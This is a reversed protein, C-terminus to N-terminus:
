VTQRRRRALIMLAAGGGVLLTGAAVFGGVALGTNPLSGGGGPATTASPSPTTEDRFLGADITVESGAKAPFVLTGFETLEPIEEDEFETPYVDSDKRADDGQDPKTIKWIIPEDNSTFTVPFVFTVVEGTKNLEVETVEYRGDAGTLVVTEDDEAAARSKPADEVVGDEEVLGKAKLQAEPADEEPNAFIVVPVDAIGPEGADQIGNRNKDNWVRGKVSVTGADDGPETPEEEAPDQPKPEEAKPDEPKPDEPKPDTEPNETTDEGPQPAPEIEPGKAPEEAAPTTPEEVVPSTTVTPTPTPDTETASAPAAMAVSLAAALVAVALSASARLRGKLNTRV